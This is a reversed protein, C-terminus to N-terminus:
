VFSAACFPALLEQFVQKPHVSLLAPNILLWGAQSVDAPFIVREPSFM